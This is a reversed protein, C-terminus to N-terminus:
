RRKESVRRGDGSRVSGSGNGLNNSTGRQKASHLRFNISSSRSSVRSRTQASGPSVLKANSNKPKQHEIHQLEAGLKASNPGTSRPLVVTRKARPHANSDSVKPGPIAAQDKDPHRTSKDGTAAAMGSLFFLLLWPVLWRSLSVSFRDGTRPIRARLGVIRSIDCTSEQMRVGDTSEV